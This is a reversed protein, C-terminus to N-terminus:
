SDPFTYTKLFKEYGKYAAITLYADAGFIKSFGACAERWMKKAETHYVPSLIRMAEALRSKSKLTEPHLDGLNRQYARYVHRYLTEAEAHGSPGRENKALAINTVCQLTNQHESGFIWTLGELAQRHLEEIADLAQNRHSSDSPLQSRMIEGKWTMSMYVDPHTSGLITRRGTLAFDIKQLAAQHEGLGSLVIARHHLSTLQDPHFDNGTLTGNTLIETRETLAEESLADAARCGEKYRLLEALQHKSTLTDPHTSPETWPGHERASLTARNMQESAEYKGRALMIAARDSRCAIVIPHAETLIASLRNSSDVLLSEAEDFNSLSTAVSMLIRAKVLKSQLTDPHDPGLITERGRIAEQSYHLAEDFKGELRLITALHHFSALTDKHSSGLFTTRDALAKRCSIAADQYRGKLMLVSGYDDISLLLDPMPVHSAEKLNKIEQFIEVASDYSNAGEEQELRAQMRRKWLAGSHGDDDPYKQLATQVDRYKGLLDLLDIQEQVVALHEVPVPDPLVRRALEAMRLAEAYRGKQKFYAAEKHHITAIAAKLSDSQLDCVGLVQAFCGRWWDRDEYNANPYRDALTTVAEEFWRREEKVKEDDEEPRVSSLFSRLAFCVLPHLSLTGNKVDETVLVHGRLHFMILIMDLPDVNSFISLPVDKGGLSYLQYLIRSPEPFTNRFARIDVVGRGIVSFRPDPQTVPKIKDFLRLRMSDGRNYLGLFQTVTMCTKTIITAVQLIARPLFTMLRAVEEIEATTGKAHPGLRSRLLSASSELDLDQLTLIDHPDALRGGSRANRALIIITGGFLRLKDLLRGSEGDDQLLIDFDDATDVVLMSDPGRPKDLWQDLQMGTASGPIPPTADTNSVLDFSRFWFIPTTPSIKQLRYVFEVVLETKGIGGLGIVAIRGPQGPRWLSFLEGLKDNRGVFHSNREYPVNFLPEPEPEPEPESEPPTPEPEDEIPKEHLRSALNKTADDFSTFLFSAIAESLQASVSSIEQTAM